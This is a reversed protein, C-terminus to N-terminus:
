DWECGTVTNLDIGKTEHTKIMLVILAAIYGPVTFCLCITGIVSNGLATILPLGVIYSFAIGVGMAFFQTSLISSRLNTPASESIM